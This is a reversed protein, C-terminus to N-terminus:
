RFGGAHRTKNNAMAATCPKVFYGTIPTHKALLNQLSCTRYRPHRHSPVRLPPTSSVSLFDFAYIARGEAVVRWALPAIIIKLVPERDHRRRDETPAPPVAPSAPPPQTPSPPPPPPTPSRGDDAVMFSTDRSRPASLRSQPWCCDTGGGGGDVNGPPRRSLTAAAGGRVADAGTVATAALSRDRDSQTSLSPRAM